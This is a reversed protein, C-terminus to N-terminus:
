KKESTVVKKEAVKKPATRTDGKTIEVIEVKTFAQRHGKKVSYRKRRKFKYVIVKKNRGQELVRGVVTAGKVKPTGIQVTKGDAYLLVESFSVDSGEKKTLKEVRLTTGKEVKYQKGGTKIVALAPMHMYIYGMKGWFAVSCPDSRHLTYLIYLVGGACM